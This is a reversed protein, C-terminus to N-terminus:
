NLKQLEIYKNIKDQYISYDNLFDKCYKEESKWYTDFSEQPYNMFLFHRVLFLKQLYLKSTLKSQNFYKLCISKATHNHRLKIYNSFTLDISLSKKSSNNEKLYSAILLDYENFDSLKNVLQLNIKPNIYRKTFNSMNENASILGEIVKKDKLPQIPFQLKKNKNLISNIHYCTEFEYVRSANIFDEINDSSDYIEDSSLLCYIYFFQQGIKVMGSWSDTNECKNELYIKFMKKILNGQNKSFTIMIKPRIHESILSQIAMKFNDLYNNVITIRNTLHIPYNSFYKILINLKWKSIKKIYPEKNYEDKEDLILISNNYIEYNNKYELLHMDPEWFYKNLFPNFNSSTKTVDIVKKLIKTHKTMYKGGKEIEKLNHIPM